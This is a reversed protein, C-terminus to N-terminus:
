GKDKVKDQCKPGKEMISPMRSLLLQASCTGNSTSWGAGLRDPFGCPWHPTLTEAHKEPSVCPRTGSGLRPHLAQKGCLLPFLSRWRDCPAHLGTEGPHIFWLSGIGRLPRFIANVTHQDRPADVAFPRFSSSSPSADKWARVGEGTTITEPLRLRAVSM